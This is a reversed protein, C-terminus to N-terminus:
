SHVRQGASEESLARAHNSEGRSSDQQQSGSDVHNGRLGGKPTPFDEQATEYDDLRIGVGFLMEIPLRDTAGDFDLFTFRDVAEGLCGTCCIDSGDWDIWTHLRDSLRLAASSKRGGRSQAFAM